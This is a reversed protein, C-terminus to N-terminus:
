AVGHFESVAAMYRDFGSNVADASEPPLWFVVRDVGIRALGEIRAADPPFGVVTVPIRSRGLESARVGLEVIRAALDEESMRNPMWGDGYALVRDLVRPGNGGVM